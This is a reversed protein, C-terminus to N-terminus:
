SRALNTPGRVERHWAVIYVALNERLATVSVLLSSGNDMQWCERGLFCPESATGLLSSGLSAVEDLREGNSMTFRVLFTDLPDLGIPFANGATDRAAASLQWIPGPVDFQIPQTTETNLTLATFARVRRRVQYTIGPGAPTLPEPYFCQPREWWNLPNQLREMNNPPNLSATAQGPALIPQDWPGQGQVLDGYSNRYM